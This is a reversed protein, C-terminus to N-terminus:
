RKSGPVRTVEYVDGGRTGSLALPELPELLWGRWSLCARLLALSPVGYGRHRPSPQRDGFEAGPWCGSQAVIAPRAGWAKGVRGPGHAGSYGSVQGLAFGPRVRSGAWRAVALVGSFCWNVYCQKGAGKDPGVAPHTQHLPGGRGSGLFQPVAM